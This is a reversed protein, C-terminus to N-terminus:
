RGLAKNLKLIGDTVKERLTVFVEPKWYGTEYYYMYSGRTTEDIRQLMEKLEAAVARSEDNGNREAETILARLTEAYRLDWIGIHGMVSTLRPEVRYGGVSRPTVMFWCPNKLWSEMYDGAEYIEWPVIGRLGTVIPLWGTCFRGANIDAPALMAQNPYSWIERGKRVEDPSLRWTRFDQVEFLLPIDLYEKLRWYSGDSETAQTLIEPVAKKVATVLRVQQGWYPEGKCHAEDMCIYIMQPFKEERMWKVFLGAVEIQKQIVEEPLASMTGKQLAYDVDGPIYSYVSFPGPVGNKMFLKIQDKLYADNGGYYIGPTTMGVEALARAFRDMYITQPKGYGGPFYGGYRFPVDVTRFPMVELALKLRLTGGNRAKLTVAGEYNGATVTDPTKLSLWLWRCEGTNMDPDLYQFEDLFVPEIAYQAAGVGWPRYQAERVRIGAAPIAGGPGRLDGVSVTMVDLDRLPFFGFSCYVPEGSVARLHLSERIETRQPRSEPYIRRGMAREFVVFGRQQEARTFTEEGNEVSRKVEEVRMLDDPPLYTLSMEDLAIQQEAAKRDKVPYIVLANMLWGPVHNQKMGDPDLDSTAPDPKIEAPGDFCFELRGRDARCRFFPRAYMYHGIDIDALKQDNCSVTFARRHPYGYDRALLGALLHVKYEGAPVDVRFRHTVRGDKAPGAATVWSSALAGAPKAKKARNEGLDDYTQAILGATGGVWGYGQKASYACASDVQTYGDQTYRDAPGFNYAHAFQYAPKQKQWVEIARKRDLQYQDLAAAYAAGNKVAREGDGLVMRGFNAPNQFGQTRSWSSNGSPATATRCFNGRWDGSWADGGAQLDALPVSLEVTWRDKGVTVASIVHHAREDSKYSGPMEPIVNERAFWIHGAPDAAVHHWWKGRVGQPTQLFVEAVDNSWIPKDARRALKDIANDLCEIAVYVHEADRCMRVVTQKPAREWLTYTAVFNEQRGAAPWEAASIVGDMVPAREVAPILAVREAKLVEPAPPLSVAAAAIGAWVCLTLAIAGVTKM